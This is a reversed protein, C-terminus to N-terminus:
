TDVVGQNGDCLGGHANSWAGPNEWTSGLDGFDVVTGGIPINWYEITNRHTPTEGGAYIARISSSSACGYVKGESLDGYDIANGTSAFEIYEIESNATAPYYGGGYAGRTSSSAGSAAGKTAAVADGFDAANGTSAFTIYDITVNAGPARGAGAVGRTPSNMCAKNSRAVTMDGFDTANGATSMQFYDIINESVNGWSIARTSNSAGGVYNQSKTLDGFDAANGTTMTTFVDIADTVSPTGGGTVFGRTFSAQHGEVGVRKVTLNGFDTANGLTAITIYEVTDDAAPDYTGGAMCMRSGSVPWYGGKVADAVEKMNWVGSANDLRPYNLAM